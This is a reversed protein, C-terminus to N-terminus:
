KRYAKTRASFVEDYVDFATPLDDGYILINQLNNIKWDISNKDTSNTKTYRRLFAQSQAITMNNLKNAVYPTIEGALITQAFEPDGYRLSFRKIRTVYKNNKVPLPAKGIKRRVKNWSRVDAEKIKNTIKKNM